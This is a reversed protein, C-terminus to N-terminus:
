NSHTKVCMTKKSYIYIYIYILQKQVNLKKIIVEEREMRRASCHAESILAWKQLDLLVNQAGRAVTEM